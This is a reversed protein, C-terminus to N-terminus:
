RNFRILRFDKKGVRLQVYGGPLLNDSTIAANEERVREGNVYVGGEKIKRRAEGKSSVGGSAVLGDPLSLPLPSAIDSTPIEAALTDLLAADASKVDREGFLVESAEKVRKATDAGHVRVTMEWAIGKQAGRGEPRDLHSSIVGAIDDLSAYSYIRYLREIDRDDTNIWFQYFKYPSTKRPDLYVAGEESKGFKEGSAALLLSFTIGYGQGESRKRILDIGGIINGQQDNGGMQLTCGLHRYMHDFDYAQMLIYSLETYTISKDPDEIRSRVYERNILTNVPFYKGTDRLFEIFSIESLWDHNNVMIASNAGCDFDLFKALQGKICEVNYAVHERTLLQREKTKGSPDGILGTGGGALAVPRHGLRQLWALGMIPVMNGVHLSDASPDFGVYGTVIEREMKQGLEEPHSCWEVFGRTSMIKYFNQPM